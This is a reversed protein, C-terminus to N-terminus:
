MLAPLQACCLLAPKAALKRGPHAGRVVWLRGPGVATRAVWGGNKNITNSYHEAVIQKAGRDVKVIFYGAPDLELPRNSLEDDLQVNLRPVETAPHPISRTM